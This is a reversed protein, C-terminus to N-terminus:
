GAGLAVLRDAAVQRAEPFPRLAELLATRVRVWEPMVVLNFQPQRNVRGEMEALLELCSRAERVGLLATRLDGAAEAAMLLRYAKSRLAQVERLLDDAQAVQEAEYARALLEPLHEAKHRAAADKKIAYRRTIDRLSSTLLARDIAARDSHSCILCSRPM